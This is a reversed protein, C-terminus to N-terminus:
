GAPPLGQAKLLAILAAQRAQADPEPLDRTLLVREILNGFAALVPAGSVRHARQRDRCEILWAAMNEATLDKEAELLLVLQQLFLEIADVRDALDKNEM